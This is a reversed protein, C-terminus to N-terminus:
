IHNNYYTNLNSYIKVFGNVFDCFPQSNIQSTSLQPAQEMTVAIMLEFRTGTGGDEM